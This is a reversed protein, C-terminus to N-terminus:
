IWSWTPCSRQAEGLFAEGAATLVVRRSDRELLRGSARGFHLEEAAAVFVRLQDLTYSSM